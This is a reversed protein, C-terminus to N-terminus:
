EEVVIQVVPLRAHANGIPQLRGEDYVAGVTSEEVVPSPVYLDGLVRLAGPRLESFQQHFVQVVVLHWVDASQVRKGASRRGSNRRGAGERAASKGRPVHIGQLLVGIGVLPRHPELLLQAAVRRQGGIIHAGRATTQIYATIVINRRGRPRTVRGN